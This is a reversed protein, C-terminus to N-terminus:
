ATRTLSSHAPTTSTPQAFDPCITMCRIFCVGRTCHPCFYFCGDSSSEHSATPTSLAHPTTLQRDSSTRAKDPHSSTPQIAASCGTIALAM